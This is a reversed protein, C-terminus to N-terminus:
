AFVEATVLPAFHTIRGSDDIQEPPFDRRYWGLYDGGVGRLFGNRGSLFRFRQM